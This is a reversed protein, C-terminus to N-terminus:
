SSLSRSGRDYARCIRRIRKAVRRRDSQNVVYRVVVIVERCIEITHATDPTAHGHRVEVCLM